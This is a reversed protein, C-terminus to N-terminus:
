SRPIQTPIEIVFETGEGPKSICELRGKHQEVIIQYSISLGLGTGKGIEKTTFFPDFAKERVEPPMGPGNDRVRVAITKKNLAETRIWITAPVPLERGQRYRQDSELADIANSLLNLFVQNIQSAYCEVLPLDGFEEVTVIEIPSGGQLRPQLILLTNRLGEEIKVSKLEAEDFRSFNRLSLVIDRIREAGVKMSAFLKETDDILFELEVEDLRRAIQPTPQPYSQQYLEILEVLQEFYEQAFTLNGFIFSVPNNIEHAVGGVMRGLSSMKETQVLQAQTQKLERVLKGLEHSKARERAESKRLAAEVQKRQEIEKHLQDYAELQKVVREFNRALFKIENRPLNAPMTFVGTRDSEAVAQNVLTLPKLVVRHISVWMLILIAVIGIAIAGTLTLFMQLTAAQLQRLDLIAIALGRRGSTGFLTNHFPLIEVLVPKGDLELELFREEGSRASDEMAAALQPRVLAYPRDKKFAGSRTITEGDPAVIAIERVAPLTVYNQVVRRLM